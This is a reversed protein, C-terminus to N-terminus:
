RFAGQVLLSGIGNYAKGGSPSWSGSPGAQLRAGLIFTHKGSTWLEYYALGSMSFGAGNFSTSGIQSIINIAGPSPSYALGLVVSADGGSTPYLNGTYSIAVRVPNGDSVAADPIMLDVSTIGTWYGPNTIVPSQSGDSPQEISWPTTSFTVNTFGSQGMQTRTVANGAIKLTDVSANRIFADRIYVGAPITSGGIVTPTTLVIFPLDGQGSTNGVWFKDARVGFDITPGANGSETLSLGVGGVVARTGDNAEVRVSWTSRLTGDTKNIYSNLDQKISTSSVQGTNPDTVAAQVQQWKSASTASPTVAALVGDQILASDGGVNAWITNIARALATDRTSRTEGESVIAAEAEGIRTAQANISNTVAEIASARQTREQLFAAGTSAVVDDIKASMEKIDVTDFETGLLNYLYTKKIEESIRSIIEGITGRGGGGPTSALGAAAGGDGGGSFMSLVAQNALDSFEGKTIFRNKDEYDINGSRQDWANVLADLFSKVEPDKIGLTPPLQSVEYNSM